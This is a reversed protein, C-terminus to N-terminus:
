SPKGWTARAIFDNYKGVVKRANRTVCDVFTSWRFHLDILNLFKSAKVLFSSSILWGILICYEFLFIIPLIRGATEGFPEISKLKKKWEWWSNSVLYNKKWILELVSEGIVNSFQVCYTCTKFSLRQTKQQNELRFLRASGINQLSSPQGNAFRSSDSYFRTLTKYLKLFRSLSLYFHSTERRRRCHKVVSRFVPAAKKRRREKRWTTTSIKRRRNERRAIPWRRQRAVARPTGRNSNLQADSMIVTIPGVENDLWGDERKRKPAPYRNPLRRWRRYDHRRVMTKTLTAECVFVTWFSPSPSSSSSPSSPSPFFVDDVVVFACSFLALSSRTPVSTMWELWTPELPGNVIM